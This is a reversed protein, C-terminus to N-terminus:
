VTRGNLLYNFSDSSSSQLSLVDGSDLAQVEYIIKTKGSGAPIVATKVLRSAGDNVFVSVSFTNSTTNTIVLSYIRVSGGDQVTYIDTLTTSAINGSALRKDAM